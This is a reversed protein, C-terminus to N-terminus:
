EKLDNEKKKKKKQKEQRESKKEIGKLNDEMIQREGMREYYELEQSLNEEEM